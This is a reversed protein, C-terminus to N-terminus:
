VFLCVLVGDLIYRIYQSLACKLVLSPSSDRKRKLIYSFTVRQHKNNMVYCYSIYVGCLGMCASMWVLANIYM